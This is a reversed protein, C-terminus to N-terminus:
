NQVGGGASEEAGRRLTALRRSLRGGSSGGGAAGGGSNLFEGNGSLQEAVQAHADGLSSVLDEQAQGAAGAAEASATRADTLQQRAQAIFDMAAALDGQQVQEMAATVQEMSSGSVGAAAMQEQVAAAAAAVQTKAEDIGEVHAVFDDAAEEAGAVEDSLNNMAEQLDGLAPVATEYTTAETNVTPGGTPTSSQWETRNDEDGTSTDAVQPLDHRDAARLGCDDCILWGSDDHGGMPKDCRPCIPAWENGTWELDDERAGVKPPRLGAPALRPHERCTGCHGGDSVATGRCTPCVKLCRHEVGPHVPHGCDFCVGSQARPDTRGCVTCNGGVPVAYEGCWSCRHMQPPVGEDTAPKEGVPEVLKRGAVKAAVKARDWGQSEQVRRVGALVAADFRDAVGAARQRLKPRDPDYVVPGRHERKSRHKDALDLVVDAWLESLYNRLPGRGKPSVPRGAKELRALRVQHRPSVQGKKAYARDTRGEQVVKTMWGTVALAIILLVM